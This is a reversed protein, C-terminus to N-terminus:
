VNRDLKGELEVSAFQLLTEQQIKQDNFKKTDEIKEVIAHSTKKLNSSLNESFSTHIISSKEKLGELQKLIEQSSTAYKCSLMKQLLMEVHIQKRIPPFSYHYTNSLIDLIALVQDISYISSTNKYGQVEEETFLKSEETKHNLLSYAHHKFHISLEDILSSLHTHLSFLTPGLTFPLSQDFTKFGQDFAFFYKKPCVGLLAYVEDSTLTEKDYAVLTELLSEADRMSGDGLRAILSLADDNIKKSIKKTISVLKQKILDLSIRKLDIRQCRSLITPPIKHAETTALFFKTNSPPEELTKLLANFAEKTLMHVEDIIYIKYKGNFTAYGVTENINRIDDIGRHSAGDIELVDLSSANIIEKCSRCNNCPESNDPHDCNLAKAFIRALSTKGTGHLGTFLYAHALKKSAIQNKLLTTVATHSTVDSFTMPRFKRSLAIYDNIPMFM